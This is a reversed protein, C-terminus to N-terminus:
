GVAALFLASMIGLAVMVGIVLKLRKESRITHLLREEFSEVELLAGRRAEAVNDLAQAQVALQAHMDSIQMRAIEAGRRLKDLRTHDSSLRTVEAQAAALKEELSSQRALAQEDLKENAGDLWDDTVDRPVWWSSADM